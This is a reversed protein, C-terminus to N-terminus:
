MVSGFSHDTATFPAKLGALRCGQAIPGGPFIRYLFKIGGQAHFHEDLADHLVRGHIGSDANRSFFEQLANITEWHLQTLMLGEKLAMQRAAEPEWALPACPFDALPTHTFGRLEQLNADLM